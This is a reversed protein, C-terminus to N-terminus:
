AVSAAGLAVSISPAADLLMRTYPADPRSLEDETARRHGGRHNVYVLDAQHLVLQALVEDVCPAVSSAEHSVTRM